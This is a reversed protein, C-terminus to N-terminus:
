YVRAKPEIYSVDNTLTYTHVPRYDSTINGKDDLWTLTHKMWNKDDRDPYDERAHAGRSETRNLAADMTVVAQAILNDVDALQQESNDKADTRTYSGGGAEVAKKISEVADDPRSIVGKRLGKSEVEGFGIIEIPGDDSTVAMVVRVASTGIDLGVIPSGTTANSKAM